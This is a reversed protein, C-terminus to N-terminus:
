RMFRYQVPLQKINKNNISRNQINLLLPDNFHKTHRNSIPPLTNLAIMEKM